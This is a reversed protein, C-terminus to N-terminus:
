QLDIVKKLGDETLKEVASKVNLKTEKTYDIM